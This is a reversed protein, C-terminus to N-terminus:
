HGIVGGIISGLLTFLLMLMFNAFINPKYTARKRLAQNIPNANHRKAEGAAAIGFLCCILTGVFLGIIAGFVM